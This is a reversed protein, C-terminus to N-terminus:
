RAIAADRPLLQCLAQWRVQNLYIDGDRCAIRFADVRGNRRKVIKADIARVIGPFGPIACGGGRAGYYFDPSAIQGHRLDVRLIGVHNVAGTDHGPTRGIATFRPRSDFARGAAVVVLVNPNIRVVGVDNQEDAVLARNDTDVSAAGPTGPVVLGCRLKIVRRGAVSKRVANAASLLFAARNTYRAATIVAGDRKPFPM